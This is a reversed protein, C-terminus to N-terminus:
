AWLDDRGLLRGIEGRLRVTDFPKTVYVDIDSSAFARKREIREQLVSLIIVPLDCLDPDSRITDYVAWGDMGPMMIDLIVLDPRIQRLLALGAEGNEAPYVNIEPHRLVVRLLEVIEHEDEISVVNYAM